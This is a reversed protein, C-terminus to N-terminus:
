EEDDDDDDVVGDDSANSNVYDMIVQQTLELDEEKSNATRMEASEVAEVTEVKTVEEAPAPVPSSVVDDDKGEEAEERALSDAALKEMLTEDFGEEDVYEVELDAVEALFDYVMRRELTSEVKRRMQEDDMNDDATGDKAAQDKLSQIQEEVQYAPVEINELRAIEDVAMSIKFDTVIDPKSIDKYKIFNEPNIMKKIEEDAMGNDRMDTMMMAYKERAQNTVLTDPVDVDMTEALSKGLAENRVGMYEQADQSDVAKRLEERLLETTLGPRVEEAFEDTIEPLTRKSASLITVDFIADKGALDKNKLAAPFRVNVTKTEGVKGGELGEVLGEMYRGPGIIVEVNDGSAADPLPEGKEGESTAMYGVMNVKCADGSALLQSEDEYPELRAYRETLDRLAADFREQNFPKRKYKGTLGLYPKEKGEVEKWRIEPWVDCKVTVELEEGPVFGEALEEAATVLSPQGIPELDHEDKLASGILEGCLENIAMTKLARKGGNKSWANEIVQPPIKAGKRFGPISVSKAVEALTKDYAASTAASPIHITLEVASEPLRKLSSPKSADSATSSSFLPATHHQRKAIILAPSSRAALSVAGHGHGHTSTTPGQHSVTFADAHFASMALCAALAMQTIRAM